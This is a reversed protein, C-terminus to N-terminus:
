APDHKQPAHRRLMRYAGPAMGTERKFALSLAMDSGYGVRRAVESLPLETGDLLHRIQNMRIEQLFRRPGKGFQQQFLRILMGRSVGAIRAADEVGIFNMYNQLFFGVAKALRFDTVALSDTSRRSIISSPTVYIPEEPIKEGAMMRDLLEPLKRGLVPFEGSVYSTPVMANETVNWDDTNCLVSVEEPVRLGLEELTRYIIPLVTSASLILAFPRPIESFFRRLLKRRKHYDNWDARPLWGEWLCSFLQLERSELEHQVAMLVDRPKGDIDEPFIKSAATAFRTFGKDMFYDVIMGAIQQTDPRITRINERPPLLRSVTPTSKFDMVAAFDPLELYDSIIGDGSWHGPIQRGCREIQWNHERGYEYIPRLIEENPEMLACLIHKM